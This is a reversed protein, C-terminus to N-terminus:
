FRLSSTTQATGLQQLFASLGSADEASAANITQRRGDPLTITVSHSSGGGGSSSSSGSSPMTSPSQRRAYEEAQRKIRKFAGVGPDYGTSHAASNIGGSYAAANEADINANYYEIFAEIQKGKLGLRLAVQRPDTGLDGYVGVSTSRDPQDSIGWDNKILGGTAGLENSGTKYVDRNGGGDKDSDRGRGSGRGSGGSSGTGGDNGGNGGGGGGGPSNVGNATNKLRVVKGTTADTEIGVGRMAAEIKLASSAVGGNAEIAKKAYEEFAKAVM